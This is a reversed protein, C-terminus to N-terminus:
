EEQHEELIVKTDDTENVEEGETIEEGVIEGNVIDATEKTEAESIAEGEGREVLEQTEEHVSEIEFLKSPRRQAFLDKLIARQVELKSQELQKDMDNMDDEDSEQNSDSTNSKTSSVFSQFSEKAPRQSETSVPIIHMSPITKISGLDSPSSSESSCKFSEQSEGSAMISPAISLTSKQSKTKPIFGLDGKEYVKEFSVLTEISEARLTDRYQSVIKLLRLLLTERDVTERNADKTAWEDLRLASQISIVAERLIMKIKKNEKSIKSAYLNSKSQENLKGHLNQELIRVKLILNENEKTLQQIKAKLQDINDNQVAMLAKDEKVNQTITTLQDIVKLQAISRKIALDREEEALEKALKAADERKKYKENQSVLKSQSALIKELENNIAINERIVRHTTAAIRLGTNDQFDQALQMLRNEMEKKLKDKGIVFKKEIEYIKRKYTMEQEKLQREQKEFKAMLIDRSIRFEEMTNLKTTLLKCESTLQEKMVKFNKEMEAVNKKHEATEVLGAEELTKVQEKLENIEGNKNNLVKKLYAIIDARDEDLKDYDKKIEENRLELEEVTTRLRAVKRNAEALQLELFTREVETFMPGKAEEPKDGEKGKEGKDGKTKLINGKGKKPPM